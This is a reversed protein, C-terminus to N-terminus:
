FGDPQLGADTDCRRDREEPALVTATVIPGEVGDKATHVVVNLARRAPLGNCFTERSAFAGPAWATRAPLFHEKRAEIAALVAARVEAPSAGGAEVTCPGVGGERRIAATEGNVSSVPAGDIVAALCAATASRAEQIPDALAPSAAVFLILLALPSLRM